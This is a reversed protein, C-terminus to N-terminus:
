DRHSHDATLRQEVQVVDLVRAGVDVEVDHHRAVALEDLHLRRGLADREITFPEVRQEVEGGTPDLLEGRHLLLRNVSRAILVIECPSATTRSAIAPPRPAATPMSPSSRSRSAPM